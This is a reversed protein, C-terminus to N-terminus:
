QKRRDQEKRLLRIRRSIEEDSLSALEGGQRDRRYKRKLEEIEWLLKRRVVPEAIRNVCPIYTQELLALGREIVDERDEGYMQNGLQRIEKILQRIKAEAFRGMTGNNM